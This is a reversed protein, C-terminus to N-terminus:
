PKRFSLSAFRSVWFSWTGAWVILWRHQNSPEERLEGTKNQIGCNANEAGLNNLPNILKKQTSKFGRGRKKYALFLTYTVSTWRGQSFTVPTTKFINWGLTPCQTHEPTPPPTRHLSPNVSSHLPHSPNGFASRLSTLSGSPDLELECLLYGTNIQLSKAFSGPRIKSEVTPM